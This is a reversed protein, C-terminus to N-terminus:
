EEALEGLVRKIDEYGFGKSVLYAKLKQEDQYRPRVRLKNILAKLAETENEAARLETVVSQITAPSIGKARLEAEVARKSRSKRLRNEAFWRAFAEDDLYRKEQFEEVLAEVLEKEAKKRFLYDRFERESHPRGMLWELARARLKGEASLKKLAELQEADLEMDKKLRQELLQDLTLSFSYKGDVFMSVRSEDRLQQKIATIKM